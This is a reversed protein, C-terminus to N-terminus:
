YGRAIDVINICKEGNLYLQLNECLIDANRDNHQDTDGSIHPTILTNPLDWLESSSPLPEEAFCDLAAGAIWNGRMAKILATDNIVKGRTVNILFATPKMMRLEEEGILGETEQTLATSLAVFDSTALLQKYDNKPLVEVEEIIERSTASQRTAMVSMGFCKALRAIERGIGGYGIIGLTKDRLESRRHELFYDKNWLHKKQDRMMRSFDRSLSVMQSLVYEAIPKSSVGGSNTLVINSHMLPTDKFCEIGTSWWHVWKLQPAKEIDFGPFDTILVEVEALNNNMEDMNRVTQMSLGPYLTQIKEVYSEQGEVAFLVKVKEM